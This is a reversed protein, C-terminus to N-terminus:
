TPSEAVPHIPLYTLISSLQWLEQFMADFKLADFVHNQKVRVELVGTFLV